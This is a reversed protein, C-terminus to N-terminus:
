YSWRLWQLWTCHAFNQSISSWTIDPVLMHHRWWVSVNEANSAMQTPFEGTVPSNGACLGTVRLKSTKRSRRRFWPEVNLRAWMDPACLSKLNRALSPLHNKLRPMYKNEWCYVYAKCPKYLNQRPIHFNKCPVYIKLVVHGIPMYVLYKIDLGTFLRNLLCDHPWHNSIGDCGNHRWQLTSKM